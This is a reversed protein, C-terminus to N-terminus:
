DFTEINKLYEYYEPTLDDRARLLHELYSKLPRLGEKIKDPMASYTKITERSGELDLTLRIRGYNDPYGEFRDLNYLGDVTIRYVIGEVVGNEDPVINASGTGPNRSSIKNFELRYGSLTYRQRHAFEAGRELMREPNMNSGYAFYYVTEDM